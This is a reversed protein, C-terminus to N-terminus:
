GVNIKIPFTALSPYVTLDESNLLNIVSGVCGRLESSGLGILKGDFIAHCSRNYTWLASGSVELTNLGRLRLDSIYETLRGKIPMPDDDITPLYYVMKDIGLSSLHNNFYKEKSFEELYIIPVRSSQYNRIALAIDRKYSNYSNLNKSVIDGLWDTSYEFAFPHVIMAAKGGTNAIDDSISEIGGKDLLCVVRPVNSM